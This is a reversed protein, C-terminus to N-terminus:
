SYLTIKKKLVVVALCICLSCRHSTKIQFLVIIDYMTHSNFLIYRLVLVTVQREMIHYITLIMSFRRAMVVFSLLSVIYGIYPVNTFKM